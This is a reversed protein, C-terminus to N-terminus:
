KRLNERKRRIRDLEREFIQKEWAPSLIWDVSLVSFGKVALAIGTALTVWHAWMPSFGNFANVFWVLLNVAVFAVSLQFFSRVQRVRRLAKREDNNPTLRESPASAAPEDVASMETTAETQSLESISVNLTAALANLSELGLNHGSEARQVTRLSLGSFESLQEQSWGKEQRLQKIM